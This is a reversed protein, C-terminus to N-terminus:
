KIELKKRLCFVDKVTLFNVYFTELRELQFLRRLFCCGSDRVTVLAKDVNFIMDM